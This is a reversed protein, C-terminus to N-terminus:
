GKKERGVSNDEIRGLGDYDDGKGDMGVRSGCGNLATV